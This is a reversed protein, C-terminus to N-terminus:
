QRIHLAGPQPKADPGRLYIPEPALRAADCNAGIRCYVAVPAAALDHLIPAKSGMRDAILPAGSGCLSLNPLCIIKEIREDDQYGARFPESPGMERPGFFQCYAEGRRADLATLLPRIMQKDSNPIATRALAVLVNLGYAPRGLALALGRAASLGIRVGTFSGPGAACYIRGIDTFKLGCEELLDTILQMLHEAHGRGIDRSCAALLEENSDDHIAVACLHASTDIALSIV